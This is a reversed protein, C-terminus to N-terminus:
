EADAGLRLGEEGAAATGEMRDRIARDTEPLRVLAGRSGEGRTGGGGVGLAGVALLLLVILLPLLLLVTLLELFRLLM